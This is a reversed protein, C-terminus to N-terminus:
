YPACPAGLTVHVTRSARVRVDARSPCLFWTRPPGLKVTYRGSKLVFRFHNRNRDVDRHAVLRNAENFVKVAGTERQGTFLVQGAVKGTRHDRHASSSMAVAAGCVAALALAM